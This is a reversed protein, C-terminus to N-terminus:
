IVDGDLLEVIVVVPGTHGDNFCARNHVEAALAQSIKYFPTISGPDNPIPYIKFVRKAM